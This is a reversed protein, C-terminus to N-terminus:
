LSRENLSELLFKGGTHPAFMTDRDGVTGRSEVRGDHGGPNPRTVFDYQRRKCDNGASRRDYTGPCCRHDDIRIRRSPVHKRGLYLRADCRARTRDHNNVDVAERDVHSWNLSHGLPVVDLDDLVGRFHVALRVFPPRAATQAIDGCEAEIGVLINRGAFAAHDDRIVGANGFPAARQAVQAEIGLLAKNV